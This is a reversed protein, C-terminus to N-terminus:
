PEHRADETAEVALEPPNPAANQQQSLWVGRAYSADVAEDVVTCVQELSSSWQAPDNLDLVASVSSLVNRGESRYDAWLRYIGPADTAQFHLCSSKPGAATEVMKQAQGFRTLDDTRWGKAALHDSLLMLNM